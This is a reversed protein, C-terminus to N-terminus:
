DYLRNNRWVRAYLADRQVYFMFNKLCVAAGRNWDMAWNQAHTHLPNDRLISYKWETSLPVSGELYLSQKHALLLYRQTLGFDWIEKCGHHLRFNHGLITWWQRCTAAVLSIYWQLHMLLNRKKQSLRSNPRLHTSNRHNKGIDWYKSLTLSFVVM